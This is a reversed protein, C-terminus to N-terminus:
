IALSSKYRVKVPAPQLTITIGQLTVGTFSSDKDSSAYRQLTEALAAISIPTESGITVAFPVFNNCFCQMPISQMGYLQPM